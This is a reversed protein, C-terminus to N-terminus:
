RVGFPVSMKRIIWRDSVTDTSTAWTRGDILDSRRLLNRADPLPALLVGYAALKM